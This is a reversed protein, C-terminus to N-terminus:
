VTVGNLLADSVNGHLAPVYPLTTEEATMPAPPDILENAPIPDAPVVEVSKARKPLIERLADANDVIFRAISGFDFTGWHEIVSEGNRTVTAAYLGAKKDVLEAVKGVRDLDAQHKLADVKSEFVQGDTTEYQAKVVRKILNAM